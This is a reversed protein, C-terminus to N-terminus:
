ILLQHRVCHCVQTVYLISPPSSLDKPISKKTGEKKKEQANNWSRWSAQMNPMTPFQEGINIKDRKISLNKKEKKKKKKTKEKSRHAKGGRKIHRLVTDCRRNKKEISTKKLNTKRM